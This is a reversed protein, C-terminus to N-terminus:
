EKPPPKKDESLKTGLRGALQNLKDLLLQDVLQAGAQIVQLKSGHRLISRGVEGGLNVTQWFVETAGSAISADPTRTLRVFAVSKALDFQTSMVPLLYEDLGWLKGPRLVVPVIGEIPSESLSERVYDLAAAMSKEKPRTPAFPDYPPEWELTPKLLDVHTMVALIPAPKRDPHQQNWAAIQALAAADPGRAAQMAHLCVLVMDASELAKAIERQQHTDPGGEGYGPTDVVVFHQHEHEPDSEAPTVAFEQSKDTTPIVDSASRVQRCLANVLSSKGSNVQGILVVRVTAAQPLGPAAPQKLDSQQLDRARRYHDAGQSLAGRNLEVLYRGIREVLIAYIVVWSYNRLKQQIIPFLVRSLAIRTGAFAPNSSMVLMTVDYFPQIFQWARQSPNWAAVITRWWGISIMNGAPVMERTLRELDEAVLQTLALLEPVTLHGIPDKVGPHYVAAIDLAMERTLKPVFNVDALQSPNLQAISEESLRKGVAAEWAQKDKETFHAPLSSLDDPLPAVDERASRMMWAALVWCIPLPIFVWIADGSKWLAYSGMGAIILIPLSWLFLVFLLRVRRM